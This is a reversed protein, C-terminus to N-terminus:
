PWGLVLSAFMFAGLVVFWGRGGEPFDEYELVSDLIVVQESETKEIDDLDSPPLKPQTQDNADMSPTKTFALVPLSM